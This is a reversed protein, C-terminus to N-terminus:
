KNLKGMEYRYYSRLFVFTIFFFIFLFPIIIKMRGNLAGSNKINIVTSNEKIIRDLNILEMRHNAQENTLMDKTKIVDNLQTNESMYVLSGNKQTNASKPISNLFADIQAIISDNKVMKIKTNELSAAQIKRYYESDNLYKLIPAVTGSESILASSKFSIIHYPYNKSTVNDELISKMEGDEAMLKILEFNRDSSSIFKYADIIPKIKLTSLKTPNKIGVTEKLFVTDQENIKSSLLDIKAYLYDTSSFNPAVIIQHDYSKSTKDLYFGIGAGLVFLIGVIVINRKFFLFGKFIRTSLSEFLGGVKKSILSLDIEQDTSINKPETSM